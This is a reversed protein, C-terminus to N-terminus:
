FAELHCGLIITNKKEMLQCKVQRTFIDLRKRHPLFIQRTNSGPDTGEHYANKRILTMRLLSVSVYQQKAERLQNHDELCCVGSDTPQSPRWNAFGVISFSQRILCSSTTVNKWSIPWTKWAFCLMRPKM